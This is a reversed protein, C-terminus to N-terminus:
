FRLLKNHNVNQLLQKEKIRYVNFIFASDQFYIRSKEHLYFELYSFKM